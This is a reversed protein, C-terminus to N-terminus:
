ISCPRSARTASPRARSTATGQVCRDCPPDHPTRRRRHLPPSACGHEQWSPDLKSPADAPLSDYGTWDSSPIPGAALHSAGGFLYRPAGMAGMLQDVAGVVRADGLVPELFGNEPPSRGLLEDARETLMAMEQPSFCRRRHVYGFALFHAVEAPSLAGDAM